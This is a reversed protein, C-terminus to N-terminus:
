GGRFFGRPPYPRYRGGRGCGRGRDTNLLAVGQKAAQASEQVRPFLDDELHNEKRQRCVLGSIKNNIYPRLNDRRIQNVQSAAHALVAVTDLCFDVMTQRQTHEGKMVMNCTKAVPIAAKAILTQVSKLRQDRTVVCKKDVNLLTTIEANLNVAQFYTSEPPPHEGYFKKMILPDKGWKWVTTLHDTLKPLLAPGTKPAYNGKNAALFDEEMEPLPGAGNEVMEADDQQIM